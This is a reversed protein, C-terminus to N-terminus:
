AFFTASKDDFEERHPSWPFLPPPSSRSVIPLSLLSVLSFLWEITQEISLEDRQERVPVALVCLSLLFVLLAASKPTEYM